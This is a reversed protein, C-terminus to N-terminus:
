VNVQLPQVEAKNENNKKYFYAEAKFYHTAVVNNSVSFSKISYALCEPDNVVWQMWESHNQSQKMEEQKQILIQEGGSEWKRSSGRM